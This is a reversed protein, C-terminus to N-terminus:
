ARDGLGFLARLDNIHTRYLRGLKKGPLKGRARLRTLTVQRRINLYALVERDSLVEPWEGDSADPVERLSM